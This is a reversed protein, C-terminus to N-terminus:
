SGHAPTLIGVILTVIFSILALNLARQRHSGPAIMMAVGTVLLICIAAGSCAMTLAEIGDYWTARDLRNPIWVKPVFSAAFALTAVLPLIM